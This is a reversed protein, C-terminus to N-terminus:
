LAAKNQPSAGQHIQKSHTEEAAQRDKPDIHGVYSLVPMGLNHRAVARHHGDIIISKPTDNDKILVSPKVDGHHAKIQEEFEKVKGPQKSAAWGKIDDTDINEWKLDVPGQWRARKIWQISDEPFNSTMQLYVHHPDVPNGYSHDDVPGKCLWNRLSEKGLQEYDWGFKGAWFRIFGEDGGNDYVKALTRYADKRLAWCDWGLGAVESSEMGIFQLIELRSSKALYIDYDRSLGMMLVIDDM